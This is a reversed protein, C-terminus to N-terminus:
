PCETHSYTYTQYILNVCICIIPNKAVIVTMKLVIEMAINSLDYVSPHLNADSMSNSILLYKM